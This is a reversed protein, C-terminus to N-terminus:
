ERVWEFSAEVVTKEVPLGDEWRLFTLFDRGGTPVLEGAVGDLAMRGSVPAGDEDHFVLYTEGAFSWQVLWDRGLREVGVPQGPHGALPQFSLENDGPPGGAGGEIRSVGRVRRQVPDLAQVYPQPGAAFIRAGSAAVTSAAEFADCDDLTRVKYGRLLYCRGDRSLLEGGPDAAQAFSRAVLGPARTAHLVGGFIAIQVPGEPVDEPTGVVIGPVAVSEPQDQGEAQQMWGLVGSAFLVGPEPEPEAAPEETGDSAGDDAVIPTTEPDRAVFRWDLEATAGSPEGWLASPGQEPGIVRFQYGGALAKFLAERSGTMDIWRGEPADLVIGPAGGRTKGDSYRVQDCWSSRCGMATTIAEIRLGPERPAERWPDDRFDARDVPLWDDASGGATAIAAQRYPELNPTEVLSWGGDGAEFVGDLRWEEWSERDDNRECAATALEARGDADLDVLAVPGDEPGGQMEVAWPRPRGSDDFLLFTANLHFICVGNGVTTSLVLLDPRGNADFDGRYARPARWFGVAAIRATWSKGADDRGQLRLADDDPYATALGLEIPEEAGRGYRSFEGVPTLPFSGGVQASAAVALLLGLQVIM